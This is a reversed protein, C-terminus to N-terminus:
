SFRHTSINFETYLTCNWLFSYFHEWIVFGPYSLSNFTDCVPFFKGELLVILFFIPRYLLFHFLFNPFLLLLKFLFYFTMERAIIHCALPTTHLQHTPIYITVCFIKETLVASSALSSFWNKLRKSQWSKEHFCLWIWTTKFLADAASSSKWLSWVLSSSTRRANWCTFGLLALPGSLMARRTSLVHASCSAWM